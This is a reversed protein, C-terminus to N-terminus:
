PFELTSKPLLFVALHFEFKKLLESCDAFFGVNLTPGSEDSQLTKEVLLLVSNSNNSDSPLDMLKLLERVSPLVDISFFHAGIDHMTLKYQHQLYEPIDIESPLLPLLDNWAKNGKKQADKEADAKHFLIDVHRESLNLKSTRRSIPTATHTVYHRLAEGFAFEISGKRVYDVRSNIPAISLGSLLCHSRLQDIAVKAAFLYSSLALEMRDFLDESPIEVALINSISDLWSQYAYYTHRFFRYPEELQPLRHFLAMLQESVDPEYSKVLTASSPIPM